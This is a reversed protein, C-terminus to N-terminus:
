GRHGSGNFVRRELAEVRDSVPNVQLEIERRIAKGERDFDKWGVKTAVTKKLDDVVLSLKSIDSTNTSEGSKRQASWSGVGFIIMAASMALNIVTQWDQSM